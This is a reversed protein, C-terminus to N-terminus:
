AAVEISLAQELTVRPFCTLASVRSANVLQVGLAKLPEVLTPYLPLFAAFPPRNKLPHAGFFHDRGTADPQMDYGLLVIRKAGLLVAVNIAQYGSNKGTRLGSPDLELGAFGTNKLVTAWKAAAPDLTFRLGAFDQLRDGNRSWWRNQDADCSYLVDAWPALDIVNKIAIVRARGRVLALDEATLSPGSGVCVVTEGEFCRPVVGYQVPPTM